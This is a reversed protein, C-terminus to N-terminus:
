VVMLFSLRVLLQWDWAWGMLYGGRRSADVQYFREFIRERDEVPIRSWYRFSSLLGTVLNFLPFLFRGGAPTYKLANELSNTFVEINQEGDGM